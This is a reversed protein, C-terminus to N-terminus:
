NYSLEWSLEITGDAGKPVARVCRVVTRFHGTPARYESGDAEDAHCRGYGQAAFSRVEGSAFRVGGTGSTAKQSFTAFELDLQKARVGPALMLRDRRTIRGPALVYHTEINARRDPRADKEGMLDLAEQRWRVETTGGRRTVRVDKFFALPMLVAGDALTIRPVLHPYAADAAGQLMGPSFPVPFYPNHMHQGEAGNIIPLGIVKGRDRVTVVARDHEGRAFWTTTSQPLTGLWRAYAPDPARGKYGLRNWIANTYIHQRALSLNEGFIRHIGRYADTRRGQGWMDVSGTAPNVWFDMYRASIRSSFAYAMRAEEPTLVDLLAAATLVELFATEGYTGISRGYEFGEGMLNFRPLLLDVSKRLWVKVEASPAMGTEVLRQAIEGILLVSYRDFRGKGETEDAFGYEGSYKRYHDLTRALLQDAASADEWGLLHRLRAISFAVGYYNNPLGILTLDPRVFRRWDLRQKLKALTDPRLAHELLGSENLDHLASVYYYIGWSDNTDDITLEAIDAFDRLRQELRPDGKDLAIIRYAMAAAIKGPLFKDGSEFVAVGGLRMARKERLLQAILQEVQPMLRTRVTLDMPAVDAAYVPGHPMGAWRDQPAANGSLLAAALPVCVLKRM